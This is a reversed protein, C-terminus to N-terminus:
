TFPLLLFTFLFEHGFDLEVSEKKGDSDMAKWSQGDKTITIKAGSRDGDEILFKLNVLLTSQAFSAFPVILFLLLALRLINLYRHGDTVDVKMM